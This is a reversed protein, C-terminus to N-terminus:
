PKEIEERPIELSARFPGMGPHEAMAKALRQEFRIASERRREDSERMIQIVTKIGEDTM